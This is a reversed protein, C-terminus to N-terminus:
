LNIDQSPYTIIGGAILDEGEYMVGSQGPTVAAVPNIFQGKIYGDDQTLTAMTGADLYRIRVLAELHQPINPYKHLVYDKVYIDTTFLDNREGLTVTNNIPDIAYVYKRKGFSYRLGKRQGITYNPLGLHQGLVNGKMDLFNGPPHKTEYNEVNEKIFRRYDNDPIFCIEQSERKKSLKEFGKQKAINRVENKTLDGLPFITQALCEQSLKWLFYSQDKKPDIGKKLFYRNNEFGIRAYHGTAIAGYGNEDACEILKKFKIMANCRVCPNPTRGNAYEGVFYRIINEDFAKRADVVFLPIGLQRAANEAKEVGQEHQRSMMMYVGGVRYGASKLLLACVGSDVGGSLAVLVSNM